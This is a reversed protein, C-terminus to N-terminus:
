AGRRPQPRRDTGLPGSQDKHHGQTRDHTIGKLAQWVSRGNFLRRLTYSRILSIATFIVSIAVNQGLTMRVGLIAPLVWHNAVTSIVLGIVINTLAEMLSDFRSQM